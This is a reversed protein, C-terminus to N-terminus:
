CRSAGVQADPPPGTRRMYLVSELGIGAPRRWSRDGVAVAVDTGIVETGRAPDLWRLTYRGPPLYRLGPAEHRQVSAYLVYGESPAALVYDTGRLALEDHPAMGTLGVGQMLRVLRGCDELRSRPTTRIDWGLVMVYASGLAVSWLKPRATSGVGFGRAEAMNLNYRGEANRWAAVM